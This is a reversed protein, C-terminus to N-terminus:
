SDVDVFGMWDKEFEGQGKTFWELQAADLKVGDFAALSEAAKVINKIQRGNIEHKALVDLDEESIDVGGPVRNCFNQWIIRRSAESLNSYRLPVHIRSTFADDFTGVRHTTLFLIGDYYELVRLFVSVMANRHMDRMCRRELFVDAEDILLIAECAAAIDMIRKLNTELHRSDNGLDGASVTYLPRQVSEAVCEATLTHISTLAQLTRKPVPNLVLQEFCAEDWAIPSIKDAFFEMFQRHKFSFGRVTSNTVLFDNELLQDLVDDAKDLGQNYKRLTRQRKAAETRGLDELEFTDDPVRGTVNLREYKNDPMRKIAVGFQKRIEESSLHFDFPMINLSDCLAAGTYEPIRFVTRRLGFKEGDYDVFYVSVALCPANDINEYWFGRVKYARPQGMVRTFVLSGPQFIM